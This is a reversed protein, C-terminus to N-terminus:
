LRPHHSTRERRTYSNAVGPSRSVFSRIVINGVNDRPSRGSPLSTPQPFRTQQCRVAPTRVFRVRGIDGLIAGSRKIYGM